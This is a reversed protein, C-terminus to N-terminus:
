KLIVMRRMASFSGATLKYFYLGSVVSEGFENRGDWYAAKSKDLYYGGPLNGLDLTRVVRGMADYIEITVNASEALRFPIWTEPNFPNPYNQPASTEDPSMMLSPAMEPEEEEEVGDFCHPEGENNRYDFDGALDLIADRDMTALAVDVADIVAGESGDGFGYSLDPHAANLLAAVAARLMIKAADLVSPGGGYNLADMLSDDSLDVMNGKKDPLPIIAFVSALADDTGYGVWADPHNKWYGPTCGNYGGVGFYHSPDEDVVQGCVIDIFMYDATVTALNAYQDIEAVGNATFTKTEGVALTEGSVIVGLQDDTVTVNVLPVPGTNTVIYEWLIPDGVPVEPGTPADADEGNTHKEIDRDPVIGMYGSPDEAMVTGCVVDGAMYEATVMGMNNYPGAVAVGSATFTVSDGAAIAPVSGVAGLQDDTV